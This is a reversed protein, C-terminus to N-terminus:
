IEDDEAINGSKRDSRNRNSEKEKDEYRKGRGDGECM